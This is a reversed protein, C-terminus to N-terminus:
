DNKETKTQRLRELAASLLDDRNEGFAGPASAFPIQPEFGHGDLPTGDPKYDIWRPVSVRMELPLDVIQPNGSAGGTPEGMTVVNSAGTMMGVFSEGSGMCRPGILLIVPREYRWPGLPEVKRAYKQTLNTYDPGDRFQDYAYIREAALFRGAVEQALHESGGGNWRVDVVLGRTERMRELAKQFQGALADDDWGYIGVFGLADRTVAWQLRGGIHLSGLIAKHASPNANAAGPSDFVPIGTGALELYVNRDRLPRLMEACVGAFEDSSQSALARPRYQDRLKGWDVEPRLTFMAYGDDFAEWLGDFAAAALDPTLVPHPKFGQSEFGAVYSAAEARRDVVFFRRLGDRTDADVLMDNPDPILAEEGAHFAARFKHGAIARMLPFLNTGGGGAVTEPPFIADVLSPHFRLWVHSIPEKHTMGRGGIEGDHLPVVLAWVVGDACHGIGVDCGGAEVRLRHGVVLRFRSVRFIDDPSFQWQRARAIATDGATLATPYRELLDVDGGAPVPAGALGVGALAMLPICFRRWNMAWLCAVAAREKVAKKWTGM